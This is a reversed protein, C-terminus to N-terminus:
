RVPKVTLLSGMIVAACNVCATARGGASNIKKSLHLSINRDQPGYDLVFAGYKNLCVEEQQQQKTRLIVLM